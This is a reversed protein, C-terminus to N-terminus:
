CSGSHCLKCDLLPKFSLYVHLIRMKTVFQIIKSMIFWNWYLAMISLVIIFPDVSHCSLFYNNYSNCAGRSRPLAQKCVGNDSLQARFFDGHNWFVRIISIIWMKRKFLASFDIIVMRVGHFMFQHQLM